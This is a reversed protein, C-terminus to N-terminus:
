WNRYVAIFFGLAPDKEATLTFNNVSIVNQGDPMDWATVVNRPIYVVTRENNGHNFTVAFGVRTGNDFQDRINMSDAVSSRSVGEVTVVPNSGRVYQDGCGAAQDRQNENSISITASKLVCIASSAGYFWDSVNQVASLPADASLASDTQGAVAATGALKKAFQITQSGGIIGSEGVELSFANILGDVFTQYDVDNPKSQDVVRTQGGYYTADNANRTRKTQVTVSASAAVVAAPVPHTSITNDNTKTTILYPRNLATNAFGSIFIWDGPLFGAFSNATSTFGTGTSAITTATQTVAVETGYIAALLYAVSDKTAEFSLEAVSERGDQVQNSPAYDLSVESSTTYAPTSKIRGETRRFPKFVPNANLEGSNTQPTLYVGWDAGTLQRDSVITPM